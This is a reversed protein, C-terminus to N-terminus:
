YLSEVMKKLGKQKVEYVMRCNQADDFTASLVSGRKIINYIGKWDIKKTGYDSMAGTGTLTYGKFKEFIQYHANLTAAFRSEKKRTEIDVTNKKPVGMVTVAYTDPDQWGDHNLNANPASGTGTFSSCNIGTFMFSTVLLIVAAASKWNSLSKEHIGPIYFAEINEKLKQDSIKALIMKEAPTFDIGAKQLAETRNDLLNVKFEPDYKAMVMLAEINVRDLPKQDDSDDPEPGVITLKDGM